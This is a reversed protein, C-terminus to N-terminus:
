AGSVVGEAWSVAASALTLADARPVLQGPTEDYRLQVAYASLRDADALEPPLSMGDDELLEALYALDHSFRFDIGRLLMVAKLAKEVAQQAHFGVIADTVSSIDLMAAAANADDRARELLAAAAHRAESM